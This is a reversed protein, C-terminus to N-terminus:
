VEDSSQTGFFELSGPERCYVDSDTHPNEDGVLNRINNSKPQYFSNLRIAGLYTFCILACISLLVSTSSILREWRKIVFLLIASIVTVILFIMWVFQSGNSTVQSKIFINQILIGIILGIAAFLLPSTTITKQYSNFFGGSLQKDILALKRKVDDM